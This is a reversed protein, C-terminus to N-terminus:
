GGDKDKAKRAAARQQEYYTTNHTKMWNLAGSIGGNVSKRIKLNFSYAGTFVGALYVGIILQAM